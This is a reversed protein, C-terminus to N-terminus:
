RTHDKRYAIVCGITIAIAAATTLVLFVLDAHDRTM